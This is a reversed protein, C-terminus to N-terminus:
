RRMLVILSYLVMLTPHQSFSIITLKHSYALM